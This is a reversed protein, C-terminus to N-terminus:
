INKLYSNNIQEYLEDALQDYISMTKGLILQEYTLNGSDSSKEGQYFGTLNIGEENAIRKVLEKYKENFIGLLELKEQDDKISSLKQILYEKEIGLRTKLEDRFFDVDMKLLLIVIFYNIFISGLKFQIYDNRNM